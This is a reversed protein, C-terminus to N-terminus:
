RRECTTPGAQRGRTAVVAGEAGRGVRPLPPAWARACRGVLEDGRAGPGQRRPACVTAGADVLRTAKEERGVCPVRPLEGGLRHAVAVFPWGLRLAPNAEAFGRLTQGRRKLAFLG